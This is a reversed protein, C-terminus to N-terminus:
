ADTSLRPKALNLSTPIMDIQRHGLAYIRLLTIWWSWSTNVTCWSVCMRLGHAEQWIRLITSQAHASFAPVNEGGGRALSGSMCWPLHTVCTGHHMGPDSVLQKRQLWHRPFHERCKRRMRLRCNLMDPLLSMSQDPISSYNWGM